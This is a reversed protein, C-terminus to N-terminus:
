ERENDIQKVAGVSFNTKVAITEYNKFSEEVEKQHKLLEQIKSGGYLYKILLVLFLCVFLGALIKIPISNIRYLM